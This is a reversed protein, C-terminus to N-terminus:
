FVIPLSRHAETNFDIVRVVHQSFTLVLTILPDHHVIAASVATSIHPNWWSVRPVPFVIHVKIQIHMPSNCETLSIDRTISSTRIVCPPDPEVTSM